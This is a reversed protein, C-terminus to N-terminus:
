LSSLTAQTAYCSKRSNLNGVSRRPIAYTRHAVSDFM